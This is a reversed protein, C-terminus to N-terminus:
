KRKVSDMFRQYDRRAEQASPIIGKRRAYEIKAEWAKDLDKMVRVDMEQAPKADEGRLVMKAANEIQRNEEQTYHNGITQRSHDLLQKAREKQEATTDDKIDRMARKVDGEFSAGIKDLEHATKEDM